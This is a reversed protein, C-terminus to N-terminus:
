LLSEPLDTFVGKVGWASLKRAEEPSNITYTYISFGRRTMHRVFGSWLASRKFHLRRTGLKHARYSSRVGSWKELVALPYDPLKEKCAKLINIKFSSLVIEGTYSSLVKSLYDVVEIEKIELNIPMRGNVTQLVQELSVCARYNDLKDHSLIVDSGSMRLDVEIMSIPLSLSKKIAQLTNQETEVGGGRHAIIEM